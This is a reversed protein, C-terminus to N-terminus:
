LYPLQLCEAYSVHKSLKGNRDAADIEAQLIEYCRPNKILYYFVARLSIATTDSGALLNNSLHNVFDAAPLPDGKVTSSRLWGMFDPRDETPPARDYDAICQETFQVVTRLPDPVRVFPQLKILFPLWKSGLLWGHLAPVQGATACAVLGQSIDGIMNEVDKRQEMFGFRGHFTLASIVDFAYWQLWTGLDVKEGEMDTMAGMFIDNCDDVSPEMSKMSSMSFKQAVPRHLAQHQAPERVSFMSQMWTGGYFVDFVTYFSSKYFKSGFGYITNIASPGSVSVVNPATRVLPGYKKHLERYVDPATGGFLVFPRWFVSLRAFVPGPIKRLDSRFVTKFYKLLHLAVLLCPVIYLAKWGSVILGEFPFKHLLTIFEVM